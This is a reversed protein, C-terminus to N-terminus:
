VVSKRDRSVEPRNEHQVKYRATHLTSLAATSSRQACNLSGDNTSGYAAGAAEVEEAAVVAAAGADLAEGATGVVDFSLPLPLCSSSSTLITTSYSNAPSFTAHTPRERAEQTRRTQFVRVLQHINSREREDCDLSSPVGSTQRLVLRSRGCDM